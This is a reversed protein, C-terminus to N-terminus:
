FRPRKVETILDPKMKLSGFFETIWDRIYGIAWNWNVYPVDDNDRCGM